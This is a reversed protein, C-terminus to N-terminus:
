AERPGDRGRGGAGSAAEVGPGAGARQSSFGDWFLGELTRPCGAGGYCVSVANQTTAGRRLRGESGWHGGEGYLSSPVHGRYAGEDRRVKVTSHPNRYCGSVCLRLSSFTVLCFQRQSVVGGESAGHLRRRLQQRRPLGVCVVDGCCGRSGCSHVGNRFLSTFLGKITRAHHRGTMGARSGRMRARTPVLRTTLWVARPRGGAPTDGDSSQRLSSLPPALDRNPCWGRGVLSPPPM